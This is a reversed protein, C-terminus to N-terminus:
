DMLARASAGPPETMQGYILAVEVAWAEMDVKTMDFERYRSIKNFRRWVSSQSEVMERLLDNEKM